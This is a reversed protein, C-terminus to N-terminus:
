RSKLLDSEQWGYQKQLRKSFEKLMIPHITSDPHPKHFTIPPDRPNPPDFRVSSGATSPDYKFGMETMLQAFHDWKMSALGKTENESTNLLQHMLKNRKKSLKSFWSRLDGKKEQQDEAPKDKRSFKSFFGSKKEKENGSTASFISAQDSRSKVKAKPGDIDKVYSRASQASTQELPFPLTTTSM